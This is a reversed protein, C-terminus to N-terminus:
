REVRGKTEEQWAEELEEPSVGLVSAEQLIQRVLKRAERVRDAERRDEALERVYTGAGQRSEVIGAQELERYAQVVTAPNVRLEGALQRVSPLPMGPRVEGTAVAVRLRDAIQVYLPIPSRPDINRFM